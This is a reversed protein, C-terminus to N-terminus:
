ILGLDNICMTEFRKYERLYSKDVWVSIIYEM